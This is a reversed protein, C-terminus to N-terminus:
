YSKVHLLKLVDQKNRRPVEITIGDVMQIQLGQKDIISKIKNRNILHSRHVRLFLTSDLHEEFQKLNHSSMYHKGDTIYIHTYPGDAELRIINTIYTFVVIGNTSPIRLTQEFINSTSADIINKVRQVAQKLLTINVPKLLYDTVSFQFAKIAFESHATVFIVHFNREQIKELLDFGTGGSMEIDLFILQPRHLKILPVAEDIRQAEAMVEVETCHKTLQKRLLSIAKAEDDIILSNIM